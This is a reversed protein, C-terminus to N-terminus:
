KNINGTKTNFLAKSKDKKYYSLDFGCQKHFKYHSIFRNIAYNYIIYSSKSIIELNSYFKNSGLKFFENKYYGNERFVFWINKHKSKEFEIDM